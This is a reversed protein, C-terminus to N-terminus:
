LDDYTPQEKTEKLLEIEELKERVSNLREEGVEITKDIANVFYNMRNFVKQRVQLPHKELDMEEDLLEQRCADLSTDFHEQLFEFEPYAKLRRLASCSRVEFSNLESEVEKEKERIQEDISSM